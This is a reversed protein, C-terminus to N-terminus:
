AAFKQYRKLAYAALNKPIKRSFAGFTLADIDRRSVTRLLDAWEIIKQADTSASAIRIELTKHVAYAAANLGYYRSGHGRRARTLDYSQPNPECYRNEQRTTPHIAYLHHMVAYLREYAKKLSRKRMDLHVHLGCTRNVYAGAEDLVACVREVVAKYIKIPACIVVEIGDDDDDDYVDISADSKIQVYKYHHDQSLQLAVEHKDPVICEIEISIHAKDSAPKKPKALTSCRKEAHISAIQGCYAFVAGAKRVTYTNDRTRIFSTSSCPRSRRRLTRIHSRYQQVLSAPTYIMPVYSEGHRTTIHLHKTSEINRAKKRLSRIKERKLSCIGANSISRMLRFFTRRDRKTFTRCQYDIYVIEIKKM